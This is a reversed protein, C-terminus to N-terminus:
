NKYAFLLAKVSERQEAKFRPNLNLHTQPTSIRKDDILKIPDSIRKFPCKDKTKKNWM